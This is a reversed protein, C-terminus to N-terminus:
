KKLKRFHKYAWSHCYSVPATDIFFFLFCIIVNAHPLYISLKKLINMKFSMIIFVYMLKSM